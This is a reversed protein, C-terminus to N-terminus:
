NRGKRLGCTLCLMREHAIFGLSFYRQASLPYFYQM